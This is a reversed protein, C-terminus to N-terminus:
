AANLTPGTALEGTGTRRFTWGRSAQSSQERSCPVHNSGVPGRLVAPRSPPQEDDHDYESERHDVHTNENIPPVVGEVGGQLILVIRHEELLQDTQGPKYAKGDKEGDVLKIQALHELDAPPAPKGLAIEASPQGFAGVIPHLEHRM